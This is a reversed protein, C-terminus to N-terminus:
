WLIYYEYIDGVLVHNCKTDYDYCVMLPIIWYYITKILNRLSRKEILAMKTYFPVLIAIKEFCENNVLIYNNHGIEATRLM